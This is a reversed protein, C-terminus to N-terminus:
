RLVLADVDESGGLTVTGLADDGTPTHGAQGALGVATEALHRADARPVRGAHAERDSAGTLVPVVVTGLYAVRM